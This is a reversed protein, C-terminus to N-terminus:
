QKEGREICAYAEHNHISEMNEAEVKFWPFNHQEELRVTVERVLDEVFVPHEYSYETIYKEDERKLLTYLPASACSEILSIMDEIWFFEGLLVLVRVFSRQNHAGYRSIEKSCPCLTLVPVEIGVYFERKAQSAEGIFRCNYEMVSPQGSIPAKKEMFFPFRLEGHATDAQLARRIEDLMNLFSNMRINTSHPHFVEIFRSMHTGKFHHPLDVFLDVEASTNQHQEAKDLVRVPYRINKVGVKNLALNRYDPSNQIDKM